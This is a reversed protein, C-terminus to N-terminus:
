CAEKAQPTTKAPEIVKLKDVVRYGQGTPPRLAHNTKVVTTYSHVERRLKLPLETAFFYVNKCLPAEFKLENM